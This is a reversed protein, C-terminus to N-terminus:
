LFFIKTAKIEKYTVENNQIVCDHWSMKEEILANISRLKERWQTFLNETHVIYCPGIKGMGFQYSFYQKWANDELLNLYSEEKAKASFLDREEASHHFQLMDCVKIIPANLLTELEHYTQLATELLEDYKWSKVFRKGTIPNILGSAIRSSAAINGDDIVLFSKGIKYFHYSLLTGSIGQGIILFDVQM